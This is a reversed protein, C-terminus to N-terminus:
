FASNAHHISPTELLFWIWPVSFEQLSLRSCEWSDQKPNREFWERYDRFLRYATFMRNTTERKTIPFCAFPICSVLIMIVISNLLNWRISVLLWGAFQVAKRFSIVHLHITRKWGVILFVEHSSCLTRQKWYRGKLRRWLINWWWDKFIANKKDGCRVNTEVFLSSCLFCGINTIAMIHTEPEQLLCRKEEFVIKLPRWCNSIMLVRWKEILHNHSFLSSHVYSPFVQPKNYCITALPLWREVLALYYIQSNNASLSYPYHFAHSVMWLRRWWVRSEGDDSDFSSGFVISGWGMITERPANVHHLVGENLANWGSVFLFFFADEISLSARRGKTYLLKRLVIM